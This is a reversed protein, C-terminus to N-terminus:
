EPRRAQLGTVSEIDMEYGVISLRRKGVDSLDPSWANDDMLEGVDTWEKPTLEELPGFALVSQWDFQTNTEYVALCARETAESYAIKESDAGFQWYAFVARGAEYGFSIPVAYARGGDALALVGTGQERLFADIEADTMEGGRVREPDVNDAM